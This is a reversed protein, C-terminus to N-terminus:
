GKVTSTFVAAQLPELCMIRDEGRSELQSPVTSGRGGWQADASDIAKRWGGSPFNVPTGAAERGFHLVM